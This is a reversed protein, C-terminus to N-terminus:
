RKDNIQMLRDNIRMLGIGLKCPIILRMLGILGMLRGLGLPMIITKVMSIGLHSKVQTDKKVVPACIWHSKTRGHMLM